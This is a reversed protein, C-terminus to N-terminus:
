RHHRHLDTWRFSLRVFAARMPGQGRANWRAYARLPSTASVDYGSSGCATRIVLTRVPRVLGAKGSGIPQITGRRVLAAPLPSPANHTPPRLFLRTLSPIRKLDASPCGSRYWQDSLGVPGMHTPPHLCPRRKAAKSKETCRLDAM